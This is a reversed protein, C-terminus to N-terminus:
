IQKFELRGEKVLEDIADKVMNTRNKLEAGWYAGTPIPIHKTVERVTNTALEFRARGPQRYIKSKTIFVLKGDFFIGYLPLAPKKELTKILNEKIM